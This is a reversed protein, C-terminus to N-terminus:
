GQECYRTVHSRGPDMTCVFGSCCEETMTCQKPEGQNDSCEGAPPAPAREAPKAVETPTAPEPTEQSAGTCSIGFVGLGLVLSGALWHHKWDM